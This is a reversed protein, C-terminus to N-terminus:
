GDSRALVDHLPRLRAFQANVSKVLGVAEWDEPMELAVTLAKRRLLDGHPHDAAYPKPVRKLPAPGWDSLTAGSRALAGQVADGHRDVFARYRALSEGQLGMVGLGLTFYDAGLGFFWGPALVGGSVPSWLLHLHTNYPTKDKSFRVDRHIRFLKPKVAAGTLRALDEAILDAFFEAPKKIQDVYRAKNAEYWARENNRALEAFFGRAAHIMAEFGDAM